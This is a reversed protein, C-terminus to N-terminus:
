IWRKTTNVKELIDNFFNIDNLIDKFFTFVVFRQIYNLIVCIINLLLTLNFLLNYGVSRQILKKLSIMSFTLIM